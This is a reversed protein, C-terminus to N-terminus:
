KRTQHASPLVFQVNPRKRFASPESAPLYLRTGPKPDYSWIQAGTEANLAVVRNYPTSFYLVNDIMIPTTQFNGPRTGFRDLNKEGNSWQWALTLRSVNGTNVDALASFKSGGQDGGYYPWDQEARPAAGRQVGEGRSVLVTAAMAGIALFAVLVKRTM